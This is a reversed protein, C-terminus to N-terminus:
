HTDDAHEAAQQAKLARYHALEADLKKVLADREDALKQGVKRQEALRAQSTAIATLQAETVKGATLERDAANGLAESLAREQSALNSRFAAMQQDFQALAAEHSRKLEVEDPFSTLIQRDMRAKEDAEKQAMLATKQDADAKMREDPTLAREVHKKVMGLPGIVDYGFRVADPPISDSYFLNGQSDRWRYRDHVGAAGAAGAAETGSVVAMGLSLFLAMSPTCFSPARLLSM